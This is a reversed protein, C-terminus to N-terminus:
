TSERIILQSPIEIKRETTFSLRETRDIEDILERATVMGIEAFPESITTLSPDVLRSVSINSYGIVSVDEPVRLKKRKLARLALAAVVDGAVCFLATPPEPLEMLGAVRKETELYDSMMVFYQGPVELGAKLMATRFCEQRFLAFARGSDLNLVAIRKHGKELLHRVGAFVGQEDVTGVRIGWTGPFTTGTVAVPINLKQAEAQLYDMMKRTISRCILGAPRQEITRNVVTEFNIDQYYPTIKVFFDRRNCERIIGDLIKVAVESSINIDLYGIFNTKGTVMSRAIANRHYGLEKAADKIRERTDKSIRVVSAKNNLVVSVTPQSVGVHAAIEKMTIM